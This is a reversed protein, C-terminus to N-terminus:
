SPIIGMEKHVFRIESKPTMLRFDCATTFEADGGL